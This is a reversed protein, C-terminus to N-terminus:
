GQSDANSRNCHLCVHNDSSLGVRWFEDTTTEALWLKASSRSGQGTSQNFSQKVACWYLYSYLGMFPPHFGPKHCVRLGTVAIVKVNTATFLNVIAFAVTICGPQFMLGWLKSTVQNGTQCGAVRSRYFAYSSGNGNGLVFAKGLMVMLQIRNTPPVALEFWIRLIALDTRVLLFRWDDDYFMRWIWGIDPQLTHREM